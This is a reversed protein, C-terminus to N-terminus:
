AASSALLDAATHGAVMHTRVLQEVAIDKEHEKYSRSFSIGSEHRQPTYCGFLWKHEVISRLEDLEEVTYPRPRAGKETQLVGEVHLRADKDLGDTPRTYKM